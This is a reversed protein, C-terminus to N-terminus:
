KTLLEPNRYIDGAIEFYKSVRDIWEMERYRHRVKLRSPEDFTNTSIAVVGYNETPWIVYHNGNHVIVDNEYVETEKQDLQNIFQMVKWSADNHSYLCTIPHEISVNESRGCLDEWSYMREQDGDWGRFKILM